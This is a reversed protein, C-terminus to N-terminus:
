SALRWAPPISGSASRRDRGGLLKIAGVGPIGQLREKITKDAYHTLQRIPYGKGSLVVTIIPAADLDLKEIIPPDIEPPLDGRAAAVKDRVEQAKVDLDEELEFEVIVQSIGETSTSRLSKIGSITNVAEEIPDSLTTEVTEPDAGELRTTITVIPFDVKPFLDIGLRYYSVLGFVVFSMTMMTAFVPRRISVDSLLM